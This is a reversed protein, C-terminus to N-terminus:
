EEEGDWLRLEDEPLPDFFFSDPIDLNMHELFGLRQPMVPDIAQLKAVPKRSRGSTIIVTEGEKVKKLLKSFTTKAEFITASTM